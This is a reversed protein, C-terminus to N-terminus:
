LELFKVKVIDDKWERSIAIPYLTSGDLTMKSRPSIVDAVTNQTGDNTLLETEIKRKSEAYFTTIRDALHKEPRENLGGAFEATEMWTNTPNFVISSSPKMKNESAFIVSIEQKDAVNNSNESKYNYDEKSYIEKVNVWGSNVATWTTVTNSKTFEIRFDKLEFSKEGNIDSLTSSGLIEVFLKGSYGGQIISTTEASSQSNWYRTFIEPKRNGITAQFTTEYSVWEKGNWWMASQRDRGIGLRMKMENNGAYAIGQQTEEFKQAGRYTDAFMRFFGGYFNHEFVTEFVVYPLDSTSGFSKKIRIFNGIIEYGTGTYKAAMAFSAYGERCSCTFDFRDISMLDNTYSMMDGNYSIGYIWGKQEMDRVTQSDFPQVVNADYNNVEAKVVARNPGRMQFDQNNTSAFINGVAETSNFFALVSGANESNTALAALSSDDLTLANEENDDPRVLYLTTGSTRATWGWFRCMERLIEFMNYKAEKTNDSAESVFNMWDVKKRLWDRAHSGGQIVFNTPRCESPISDVVSKLLYAFNHVCIETSSINIRSTVSMSCQIPFEREQPTMFLQAGFNQAQMFGQWFVQTQGAINISTLKVPRSTDTMPIFDRWNFTGGQDVIRLYGSQTRIPTFWDDEGSEETSFPSAAGTLQVPDGTYNDDYISM